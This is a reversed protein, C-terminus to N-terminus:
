AMKTISVLDMLMEEGENVKAGTQRTLFPQARVDKCQKRGQQEDEGGENIEADRFGLAHGEFFDGCYKLLPAFPRLLVESLGAFQLLELRETISSLTPFLLLLTRM